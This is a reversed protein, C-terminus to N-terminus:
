SVFARWLSRLRLEQQPISDRHLLFPDIPQAQAIFRKIATQQENLSHLHKLNTFSNEANNHSDSNPVLDYGSATTLSM